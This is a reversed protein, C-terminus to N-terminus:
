EEKPHLRKYFKVGRLLSDFESKQMHAARIHDERQVSFELIKSLLPKMYKIRVPERKETPFGINLCGTMEMTAGPQEKFLTQIQQMSEITEALTDGLPIFLESLPDFLVQIVDDGHGLRGVSLYYHNVGEEPMNFVSMTEVTFSDVENEIKVLDIRVPIPQAFALASLASLVLTTVSKRIFNM